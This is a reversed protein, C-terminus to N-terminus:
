NNRVPLRNLLLTATQASYKAKLETREAAVTINARTDAEQSDIDSRNDTDAELRDRDNTSRSSIPGTETSEEEANPNGRQRGADDERGKRPATTDEPEGRAAKETAPSPTATPQVSTSPTSMALASTSASDPTATSLQQTSATTPRPVKLPWATTALLLSSMVVALLISTRAAM